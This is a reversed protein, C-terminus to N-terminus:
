RKPHKRSVPYDSQASKKEMTGPTKLCLNLTGVDFIESFTLIKVRLPASLIFPACTLCKGGKQFIKNKANMKMCIISGSFRGNNNLNWSSAYLPPDVLVYKIKFKFWPPYWNFHNM